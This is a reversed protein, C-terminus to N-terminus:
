FNELSLKIPDPLVNTKKSFLIHTVPLGQNKKILKKKTYILRLGKLMWDQELAYRGGWICLGVKFLQLSLSFFGKNYSFLIEM